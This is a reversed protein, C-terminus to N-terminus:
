GSKAQGDNRMKKWCNPCHWVSMKKGDDGLVVSVRWARSGGILSYNTSVKPSHAGCGACRQRRSAEEPDM